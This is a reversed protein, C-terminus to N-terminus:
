DDTSPEQDDDDIGPLTDLGTRNKFARKAMAKARTEDQTGALLPEVAVFRLTFITPDDKREYDATQRALMVKGIVWIETLPNEAFAAATPDLGNNEDKPLKTTIKVSV